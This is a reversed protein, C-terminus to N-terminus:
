LGDRVDQLPWYTKDAVHDKISLLGVIHGGGWVYSKVINNSGDLEAMLEWGSWVFKITKVTTWSGGSRQKVVKQIRRGQYDYSFELRFRDADAIGTIDGRIEVATLRSIADWEYSRLSDSTLNGRQDYSRSEEMAPILLRPLSGSSEFADTGLRESVGSRVSLELVHAGSTESRDLPVFYRTGDRAAPVGNVSVSVSGAVHGVIGVKGSSRGTMQNRSNVTDARTVGGGGEVSSTQNGIGDYEFTYFSGPQVVADAGEGEEPERALLSGSLHDKVNGGSLAAPWAPVSVTYAPSWSSDATVGVAKVRYHYTQGGSVTVDSLGTVNVPTTGVSSWSGGGNSSREVEYGTDRMVDVWTVDVREHSIAFGHADPAVPADLVNLAFNDVLVSSASLGVSAEDQPTPGGFVRCWVGVHGAGTIGSDTATVTWTSPEALGKVWARAKISTGEVRMRMQWTSGATFTSGMTASALLTEVGNDVRVIQIKNDALKTQARYYTGDFGTGFDDEDLTARATLGFKDDHRNVVMSDVLFGRTNSGADIPDGSGPTYGARFGVRGAALPSTSDNYSIQWTTPEATGAQWVRSYLTPTGDNGTVITMTILYSTGATVTIGLPQSDLLSESGDVVKKLALTGSGAMIETVYYSGGFGSGFSTNGPLTARAVIGLRDGTREISHLALIRTDEAVLDKLTSVVETKETAAYNTSGALFTLRGRGSSITDSLSHGATTSFEDFEWRSSWNSGSTWQEAYNTLPFFQLNDWDFTRPETGSTGTSGFYAGIQSGNLQRESTDSQSLTWTSPESNGAIWVKAFVKNRGDADVQERLRFWYTSGVSINFGLDVAGLSTKTQGVVRWLTLSSSGAEVSTLLYADDRGGEADGFNSANFKGNTVYGFTDGSQHVTFSSLIDIEGLLIGPYYAIVATDETVSSDNVRSFSIRGM